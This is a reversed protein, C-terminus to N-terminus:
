KESLKNLYEKIDQETKLKPADPDDEDLSKLTKRIFENTLEPKDEEFSNLYDNIEQENKFDNNNNPQTVKTLAERRANVKKIYNTRAEIATYLMEVIERNISWENAEANKKILSYLKQNVSLLIKKKEMIVEM